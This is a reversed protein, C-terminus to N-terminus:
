KILKNKVQENSLKTPKRKSRGESPMYNQERKKGRKLNLTVVKDRAITTIEKLLKKIPSQQQLNWQVTKGM